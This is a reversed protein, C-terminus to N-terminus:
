SCLDVIFFVVALDRHDAQYTAFYGSIEYDPPNLENCNIFTLGRPAENKLMEKIHDFLLKPEKMFSYTVHFYIDCDGYSFLKDFHSRLGAKDLYTCVLAEYISIEQGSVRIVADREGPNGNQTAGGLSQDAVDWKTVALRAGLFERVATNLDDEYKAMNQSYKRDRLITKMHRLAAVARSVERTLYGRFGLGPPGLVDGIQYPPLETLQQLASRLSTITDITVSLSPASHTPINADLDAKLEILQQDDGFENIAADLIALAESRFGMANKALVVIRELIPNPRERRRKSLSDIAEEPRQLALILLARNALLNDSAQDEDQGIVENMEVLLAEGTAKNEGVLYQNNPDLIQQLAVALFNEKYVQTASASESLRKLISRAKKLDGKPRLLQSTAQYFDLKDQTQQKETQNLIAPVVVCDLDHWNKENLLLQLELTFFQLRSQQPAKSLDVKVKNMYERALEIEGISLLSEIRHQIETWTWPEYAEIPKLQKLRSKITSRATAPLYEILEAILVPDDSSTLINLMQQQHVDDLKRWADSLDRAPSGDKGLLYRNPSYRETLAGIRGKETHDIVCRSILLQFADCLAEPLPESSWGAIARALVRVHTRLTRAIEHRSSNSEDQLRTASDFPILLENLVPIPQTFATSILQAAREKSLDPADTWSLNLDKAFQSYHKIIPLTDDSSQISLCSLADLVGSFSVRSINDKYSMQSILHKLVESQREKNEMSVMSILKKGILRRSNATAQKYGAGCAYCWTVLSAYEELAIVGERLHYALLSLSDQLAYSKVQAERIVRQDNNRAIDAPWEIALKTALSATSHHMLMEVLLSPKAKARYILVQLAIPHNTAFSLLTEASTSISPSIDTNDLESCLLGFAFSITNNEWAIREMMFAEVDPWKLWNDRDVLTLPASERPETNYRLKEQPLSFTKVLVDTYRTVDNEWTGWLDQRTLVRHAAERCCKMQDDNWKLQWEISCDLVACWTSWELFAQDILDAYAKTNSSADENKDDSEFLSLVPECLEEWLRGALWCPDKVPIHGDLWNQSVIRKALSRVRSPPANTKAVLRIKDLSKLFDRTSLTPYNIYSFAGLPARHMVWRGGDFCLWGLRVLEEFNPGGDAIRHVSEDWMKAIDGVSGQHELRYYHCLDLLRNEDMVENIDPNSRYRIPRSLWREFSDRLGIRVQLPAWMGEIPSVKEIKAM